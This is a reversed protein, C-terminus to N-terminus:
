RILKRVHRKSRLLDNTEKPIGIGCGRLITTLNFELREKMSIEILYGLPQTYFSARRAEFSPRWCTRQSFLPLRKVPWRPVGRTCGHRPPHRWARPPITVM